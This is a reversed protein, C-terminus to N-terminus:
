FLTRIFKQSEIKHLKCLLTNVNDKSMTQIACEYFKNDLDNKSLPKEASGLYTSKFMDFCTTDELEIHVRAGEPASQHMTSTSWYNSSKMYIKEMFNILIKNKITQNNLHSFKLKGYLLSAAVSFQMSFQAQQRTVPRDYLLNNKVTLPVDCIIHKIHELEIKHQYVLALSAEVAAHSSLCVPIRKIDIGPSLLNWHSGIEDLASSEFVNQNFLAALGAPAELADLPGSCGESALLASIVGSEAARGALLPKADTGFCVKMGGTGSLALGLASATQKPNLGLLYAAAACAGVPGLVGTTWWGQDYLQQTLARGIAYESEAGIIFATLFEAGSANVMEGVAFAAPFIVVSGHVFGAYSSDDYDLAHGATANVFAAAPASLKGAQGLISATQVSSISQAIRRAQGAVRTTSGVLGVGITDILCSKAVLRVSEPIESLEVTSIWQALRDIGYKEM